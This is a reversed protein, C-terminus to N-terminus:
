RVIVTASMTPHITCIYPFTGATSFLNSYTGGSAISGSSGFLGTTSTVTHDVGDKNTWTIRTGPAVTITSPTFSMGQIFVENAGPVDSSKKCSDTISFIVILLVLGSSFRRFSGNLM